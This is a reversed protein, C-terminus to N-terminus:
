PSTTPTSAGPASGSASTTPKGMQAHVEQVRASLRILLIASVDDVDGELPQGGEDVVLEGFLIAAVEREYGDAKDEATEAAQLLAEATDGGDRAAADAGKANARHLKGYHDALRSARALRKAQRKTMPRMWVGEDPWLEILETNAALDSIKM